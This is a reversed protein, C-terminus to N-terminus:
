RCCCSRCRCSCASCCCDTGTCASTWAKSWAALSPALPVSLLTGNRVEEMSKLSTSVMVYLPLLFFFAFVLLVAWLLLRQM